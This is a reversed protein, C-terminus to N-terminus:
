LTRCRKRLDSEVLSDSRHSFYSTRSPGGAKLSRGDPPADSTCTIGLGRANLHSLGRRLYWLESCMHLGM